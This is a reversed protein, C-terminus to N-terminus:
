AFCPSASKPLNLPCDRGGLGGSDTSAKAAVSCAAALSPVVAPRSAVAVVWPSSHSFAERTWKM